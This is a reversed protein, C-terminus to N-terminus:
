LEKYFYIHSAIPSGSERKQLLFTSHKPDKGKEYPDLVHIVETWSLGKETVEGGRHNFSTGNKRMFVAQGDRNMKILLQTELEKFTLKM